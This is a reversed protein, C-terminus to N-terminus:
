KKGKKIQLMKKIERVKSTQKGEQAKRKQHLLFIELLDIELKKNM